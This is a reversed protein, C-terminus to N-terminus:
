YEVHARVGRVRGVDFGPEFRFHGGCRGNSDEFFEQSFAEGYLSRISGVSFARGHTVQAYIFSQLLCSVLASAESLVNSFPGLTQRRM